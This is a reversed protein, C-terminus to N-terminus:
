LVEGEPIVNQPLQFNFEFNRDWFPLNEFPLRDFSSSSDEDDQNRQREQRMMIGQIQIGLYAKGDENPNEGLTVTIESTQESEPDYVTLVINDGPSANGITEVLAGPRVISEGEVEVIIWGQQLGAQEAPSDQAVEGILVGGQFEDPLAPFEDGRRFDFPMDPVEPHGEFPQMFPMEGDPAIRPVGESYRVGLYARGAEEPHKGLTVELTIPDTEGSRAIELRVNDNPEYGAIVDSLTNENNLEDGNVSLIRDGEQLGAQDAPGDAVVEVILAGPAAEM